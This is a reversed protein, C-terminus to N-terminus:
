GPNNEWAFSVHICADKWKAGHGWPPLPSCMWPKSTIFKVVNLTWDLILFTKRCETLTKKSSLGPTNEWYNGNAVVETLVFFWSRRKCGVVPLEGHLVGKRKTGRQHRSIEDDEGGTPGACTRDAERERGRSAM